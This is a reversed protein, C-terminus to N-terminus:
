VNGYYYGTEGALGTSWRADGLKSMYSDRFRSTGTDGIDQRPSEDASTYAGVTLTLPAGNHGTFVTSSAATSFYKLVGGAQSYLVQSTLQLVKTEGWVIYQDQGGRYNGEISGGLQQRKDIDSLYIKGVNTGFYEVKLTNVAMREEKSNTIYM